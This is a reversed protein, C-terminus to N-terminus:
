VGNFHRTLKVKTMEGSRTDSQTRHSGLLWIQWIFHSLNRHMLTDGISVHDDATYVIHIFTYRYTHWHTLIHRPAQAVAQWARSEHKVAQSGILCDGAVAMAGNAHADVDDVGGVFFLFFFAFVCVFYCCYSILM